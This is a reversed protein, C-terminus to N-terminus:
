VRRYPLFKSAFGAGHHWRHSKADYGEVADRPEVRWGFKFEFHRLGEKFLTWKFIKIDKELTPWIHVFKVGARYGQWAIYGYNKPGNNSRTYWPEYYKLYQPTLYKVKDQELELDVFDFNRLGNAPNRVAHYKYWSWFGFGRDERAKRIVIKLLPIKIDDVPENIWWKPLSHETGAIGDNWDEPNQWPLFVKPVEDFPRKRYKYLFPVVIGGAFMTPLKIAVLGIWVVIFLPLRWLDDIKM